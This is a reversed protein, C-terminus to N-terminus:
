IKEGRLASPLVRRSQLLKNAKEMGATNNLPKNFVIKGANVLNCTKTNLFFFFKKKCREM